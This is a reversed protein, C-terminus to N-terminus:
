SPRTSHQSTSLSARSFLCSTQVFLSTKDRLMLYVRQQNHLRAQKRALPNNTSIYQIHINSYLFIAKSLLCFSVTDHDHDECCYLFRGPMLIRCRTALERCRRHQQYLHQLTGTGLDVEPAVVQSRGGGQCLVM